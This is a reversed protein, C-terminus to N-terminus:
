QYLLLETSLINEVITSRDQTEKTPTQASEDIIVNLTEESIEHEGSLADTEVIESKKGTELDNELMKFEYGSPPAEPSNISSAM